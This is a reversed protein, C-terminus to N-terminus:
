ATAVLRTEGATVAEDIAVLVDERDYRPPLLVDARSGFSVHGIRQGRTLTDGGEVYPHIRRAFWGAILAVEYDGCDIVVRENRDSDKSFAPKYAGPCHDVSRVTGGAPARNVHVDTVNMFIGVRVRDGEERIVSVRGDAPAIIGSGPPQRPPDRHFWLVGVGLALAVAAGPPFVVVAIVAAAFCIAAYRWAGSAVAITPLISGM